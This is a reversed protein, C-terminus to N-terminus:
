VEERTNDPMGLWTSLMMTYLLLCIPHMVSIGLPESLLGVLLPAAAGGLSGFASFAIMIEGVSEDEPVHRLLVAFMCPYISGLMVGILATIIISVAADLVLWALFQCVVAAITAGLVLPKEGWSQPKGPPTFCGVTLGVWFAALALGASRYKLSDYTYCLISVSWGSMSTQVGSFAFGFIAGLLVVKTPMTLLVGNYNPKELQIEARDTINPTHEKDSSRFSWMNLLLVCAALGAHVLYLQSWAAGRELLHMAILSSMAGGVGYCGHLLRTAVIGDRFDGCFRIGFAMNTAAGFSIICFALLISIYPSATIIPVYGALTIM